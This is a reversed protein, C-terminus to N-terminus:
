VNLGQGADKKRGSVRVKGSERRPRDKNKNAAEQVRHMVVWFISNRKRNEKRSEKVRNEESRKKVINRGRGNIM